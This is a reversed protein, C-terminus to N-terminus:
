KDRKFRSYRAEFARFLAFATELCQNALVEQGEPFHIECLIDTNMIEKHIEQRVSHWPKTSMPISSAM